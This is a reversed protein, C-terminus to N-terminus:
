FFFPPTLPISTCFYSYLEYLLGLVLWSLYGEDRELSFECLLRFTCRFPSSYLSLGSNGSAAPSAPVAGPASQMEGSHLVPLVSGVELLVGSSNMHGSAVAMENEGVQWLLVCIFNRSIGDCWCNEALYASEHLYRDNATGANRKRKKDLGTGAQPGKHLCM